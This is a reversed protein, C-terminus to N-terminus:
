QRFPEAGASIRLDATLRCTFPVYDPDLKHKAWGSYMPYAHMTALDLDQFVQDIRFGIDAELSAVHLGITVQRSDKERIRAAHRACWARGDKSTRPRAFIDPENGLNWLGIAPHGALASVVEDILHNESKLASPDTFLNKYSAAGYFTGSAVPPKMPPASPDLLWSPAWNPGSMHGTFFTLDVALGREAALDCFRM